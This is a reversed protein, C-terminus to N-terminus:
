AEDAGDPHVFLFVGRIMTAIILSVISGMALEKTLAASM